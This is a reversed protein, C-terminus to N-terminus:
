EDAPSRVAQVEVRFAVAVGSDARWANDIDLIVGLATEEFENADSTQPFEIRMAYSLVSYLTGNGYRKPYGMTVLEAVPTSDPYLKASLAHIADGDSQIENNFTDASHNWYHTIADIKCTPMESEKLNTSASCIADYDELNRVADIVEFAKRVSEQGLMNQGDAHLLLNFPRTEQPFGSEKDIWRSHIAPRSDTPTWADAGDDLLEFRTFFALILLLLSLFVSGFITKGPSSASASTLGHLAKLIPRHIRHVMSTWKQSFGAPVQSDTYPFLVSSSGSDSKVTPRQDDDVAISNFLSVNLIFHCNAEYRPLVVQTYRHLCDM